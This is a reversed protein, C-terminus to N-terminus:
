LLLPAALHAGLSRASGGALRPWWGPADVRSRLPLPPLALPERPALSWFSGGMGRSWAPSPSGLATGPVTPGAAPPLAAPEGADLNPASGDGGCTRRAPELASVAAM